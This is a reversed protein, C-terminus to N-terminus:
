EIEVEGFDEQGLLEDLYISEEDFGIGELDIDGLDITDDGFWEEDWEGDEWDAWEEDWEDEMMMEQNMMHNNWLYTAPYTFGAFALTFILMAAIATRSPRVTGGAKHAKAVAGVRWAAFLACILLAFLLPTFILLSLDNFITSFNSMFESFSAAGGMAAISLAIITYSIFAHAIAIVLASLYRVFAVPALHTKSTMLETSRLVASHITILVLPLILLSIQIVELSISLLELSEPFPWELESMYANLNINALYVAFATGLWIAVWGFNQPFLWRIGDGIKRVISLAEDGATGSDLTVPGDGEPNESDAAFDKQAGKGMADVTVSGLLQGDKDIVPLALLSHKAILSAIIKQDEDPSVSVTNYQAFESLKKDNDQFLLELLTVVGVLRSNAIPKGDEDTGDVLYVYPVNDTDAVFQRLYDTAEAVTMEETAVAVELSMVDGVSNKQNNKQEQKDNEQMNSKEEEMVVKM